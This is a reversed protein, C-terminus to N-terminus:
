AFSKKFAAVAASLEAETDKDNGQRRDEECRRM